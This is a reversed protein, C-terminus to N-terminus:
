ANWPQKMSRQNKLKSNLNGCHGFVCSMAMSINWRIKKPNKLENQEEKMQEKM